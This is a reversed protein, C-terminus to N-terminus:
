NCLYNKLNIGEGKIISPSLAIQNDYKYDAIDFNYSDSQIKVHLLFYVTVASWQWISCLLTYWKWIVFYIIVAYFLTFTYLTHPFM